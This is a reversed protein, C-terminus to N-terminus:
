DQSSLISRGKPLILSLGWLIITTWFLPLLGKIILETSFIDVVWVLVMAILLSFLNFTIIKLPLAIKNLIPKVFFNLFGLFAGVFVLTGLIEKWFKPIFFFPGTFNVDPVFKVALWLGLVGIIMQIILRYFMLTYKRM